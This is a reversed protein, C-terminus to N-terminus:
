AGFIARHVTMTSDTQSCNNQVTLRLMDDQAPFLFIPKNFSESFLHPVSKDRTAGHQVQKIAILLQELFVQSHTKVSAIDGNSPLVLMPM